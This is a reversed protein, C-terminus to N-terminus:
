HVVLLLLQRRRMLLPRKGVGHKTTDIGDIIIVAQQAKIRFHRGDDDAVTTSLEAFPNQLVTNAKVAPLRRRGHVEDLTLAPARLSVTIFESNPTATTRRRIHRRCQLDPWSCFPIKLPGIPSQM